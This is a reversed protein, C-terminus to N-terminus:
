SCRAEGLLVRTNDRVLKGIDIVKVWIGKGKLGEAYLAECIYSAYGDRRSSDDLVGVLLTSSTSWSADKVKPETAILKEAVSKQKDPSIGSYSPKSEGSGSGGSTCTVLLAIILLAIGLFKM